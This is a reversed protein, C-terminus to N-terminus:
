KRMRSRSTTARMGSRGSWAGNGIQFPVSDKGGRKTVKLDYYPKLGEQESLKNCFEVSDFWSVTEVPFQSTDMGAVKAHRIGKPGFASPNYGMVKEWEGQTM